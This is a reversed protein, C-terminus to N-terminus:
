KTMVRIGSPSAVIVETAMNTFIGNDIVGPIANIEKELDDIILDAAQTLMVAFSTDIVDSSTM